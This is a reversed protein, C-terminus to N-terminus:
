TPREVPAELQASESSFRRIDAAGILDNRAFGVERIKPQDSPFTAVTTEYAILITEEREEFTPGVDRGTAIGSSKSLASLAL